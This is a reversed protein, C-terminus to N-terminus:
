PADRTRSDRKRRERRAKTKAKTVKAAKAKEARVRKPAVHRGLERRLRTVVGKAKPSARREKAKARQPVVVSMRRVSGASIPLTDRRGATTVFSRRCPEARLGLPKVCDFSSRTTPSLRRLAEWDSSSGHLVVYQRVEASLSQLLVSCRDAEYLKLETFNPVFASRTLDGQSSRSAPNRGRLVPGYGTPGPPTRERGSRANGAGLAAPVSSGRTRQERSRSNSSTHPTSCGGKCVWRESHTCFDQSTNPRNCTMGGKNLLTSISNPVACSEALSGASCKPTQSLRPTFFFKSQTKWM